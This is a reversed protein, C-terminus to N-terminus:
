NKTHNTKLYDVTKQINESEDFGGKKDIISFTKVQLNFKKKAISVITNSDVGGSLCFAMPVDSRFKQKFKRLIIKQM